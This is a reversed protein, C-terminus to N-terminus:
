YAGAPVTGAPLPTLIVSGGNEDITYVYNVKALQTQGAAPTITINNTAAAGSNDVIRLPQTRTSWDVTINAATAVNVLLVQDTPQAAYPTTTVPKTAQSPSSAIATALVLSSVGTLSDWVLVYQNAPDSVTSQKALAGFNLTITWIGNQKLVGIIGQGKVVSPFPAGINVRVNAPLTM